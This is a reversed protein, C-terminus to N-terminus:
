ALFKVALLGGVVVILFGATVLGLRKEIFIRISDGYARLLAATLFFRAGRTVASLLIFPILDYGAFGSAITVLKFPIPTFGKLLIILAGYQNYAARFTEMSDGLGYVRILWGGLTDFLLAGIAYGVIGGLVSAVTSIAAFFWARDRRALVMPVLLPDPPIPFVSSEAFSVVALVAPANRTSALRMTWDYLPRLM